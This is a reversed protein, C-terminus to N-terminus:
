RIDRETALQFFFIPNSRGPAGVARTAGSKQGPMVLLGLVLWEQFGTPINASLVVLLYSSTHM